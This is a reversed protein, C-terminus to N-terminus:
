PRVAPLELRPLALQRQGTASAVQRDPTPESVAGGVILGVVFWVIPLMQTILAVTAIIPLLAVLAVEAPGARRRFIRILVGTLGLLFLGVPLWGVFLATFVIESDISGFELYQLQGDSARRTHEAPGLPRVDHVAATYLRERYDSSDTVESGASAFREQSFSFAPGIAILLCALVTWRTRNSLGGPKAILSVAAGLAIGILAVRSGSAFGGAALTALATLKVNQSAESALVFPVAITLAAALTLSHGFAAESRAHGGRDQVASWFGEGGVDLSKFVHLDAAYEILAWGATATLCVALVKTTWALGAGPVLYRAVFYAAIGQVLTRVIVTPEGGFAVASTVFLAAFLAPFVDGTRFLNARGTLLPLLAGPAALIAVLTTPTLTAPGVPLSLWSPVFCLVVAWTGVARRPFRLWHSALAAVGLGLVAAAARDGALTALWVLLAVPIASLGWALDQRTRPLSIMWPFRLSSDKGLGPQRDPHPACAPTRALAQAVDSSHSTRHLWGDARSRGDTDPLANQVECRPLPSRLAALIANALVEPTADARLVSHKHVDLWKALGTEDSTVVTMGHSLAEQIPLGIQERWRGDPISPAVLVSNVMMARQVMQRSSLGVFERQSPNRAAWGQVESALPGDGFLTLSAEPHEREVSEWAGMLPILGKRRELAGVFLASGPKAEVASRINSTPRALQPIVTSDVRALDVYREYAHRSGESGFAIRDTLRAVLKAFGWTAVRLSRAVWGPGSASTGFLAVEPPNNEIAYFGVTKNRTKSPRGYKAVVAFLLWRASFRAWWPEWLEITTADSRAVMCLLRLTSGQTVHAPTESTALDFSRKFHLTPRPAARDLDELHSARVVPFVRVSDANPRADGGTM